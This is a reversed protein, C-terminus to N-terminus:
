FKLNPNKKIFDQVINLQEQLKDWTAKEVTVTDSDPPEPADQAMASRMDLEAKRLADEYQTAAQKVVRQYHEVAEQVRNIAM